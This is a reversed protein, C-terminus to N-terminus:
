RLDRLARLTLDAVEAATRVTAPDDDAAYRDGAADYRAGAISGHDADLERLQVPWGASDLSAAFRRSAAPPVVDDATGHLLTFPTRVRGGPKAEALRAAIDAGSIPDRAMFAGALCVTHRLAVDHDDAHVTLGAAAVGGLSWGVLTLPEPGASWSQAYRVSSLLDTRGGDARHSDWDPAIVSLGREALLGALVRVTARADTQTGHWLLITPAEPEGFVDVARGEAYEDTRM